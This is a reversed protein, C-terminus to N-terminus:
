CVGVMGWGTGIRPCGEGAMWQEQNKFHGFVNKFSSRFILFSFLYKSFIKLKVNQHEKM